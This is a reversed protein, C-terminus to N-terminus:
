AFLSHLFTNCKYSICIKAFSKNVLICIFSVFLYSPKKKTRTTAEYLRMATHSSDTYASCESVFCLLGKFMEEEPGESIEVQQGSLSECDSFFFMTPFFLIGEEFEVLFLKLLFKPFRFNCKLKTSLIKIKNNIHSINHLHM